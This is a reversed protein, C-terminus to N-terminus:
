LRTATTRDNERLALRTLDEATLVEVDNYSIGVAVMVRIPVAGAVKAVAVVTGTLVSSPIRTVLTESSLVPALPTRVLLSLSNVLHLNSCRMAGTVLANRNECHDDWTGISKKKVKEHDAAATLTQHSFDTVLVSSTGM